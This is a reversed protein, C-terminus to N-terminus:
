CSNVHIVLSNRSLLHWYMYYRAEYLSVSQTMMQVHTRYGSGGPAREKYQVTTRILIGSESEQVVGSGLGKDRHIAELLADFGENGEGDKKCAKIGSSM